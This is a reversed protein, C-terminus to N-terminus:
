LERKEAKSTARPCSNHLLRSLLFEDSILNVPLSYLIFSKISVTLPPFFAILFSSRFFFFFLVDYM